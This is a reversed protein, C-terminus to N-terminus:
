GDLVQLIAAAGQKLQHRDEPILGRPDFRCRYHLRLLENLPGKIGALAPENGARNLWHALLENPQRLVGREALKSEVLYFESDLGPWVVRADAGTTQLRRQRRNRRFLIQFLLLALVPAPFWMLYRRLHTQGWRFKSFQFVMRSWLDSLGQLSSARKSEEKVWSAPTTDFDRWTRAPEDWVLCWAHADRQRVVYHGGSVEHVMYGVAYRAPIKLERLLLVTATAFYECHGSRTHLLFRTLPTEGENTGIPRQQWVSYNFKSQLFGNISRLMEETNTGQLPLESLVQDLAPREMEPVDFDSRRPPPDMTRGPGYSADFQILGPGEARVMGSSNTSLSTFVPLNELRGSGTPLPLLDFAGDRTRGELYCALSATGTNTKGRLLVWTTGNAEEPNIGQFDDRGRGALWVTSRYSRYSAERLYVPPPGTRTELWIVIRGSQKIRGIQGLSTRSHWPDAGRRAFSYLWQPNFTNLFGQLRGIGFQGGYGLAVALTFLGLWTVTGYRRSRQSWLAWALLVCLGWFYTSNDGAHNAAAFLCVAFYPFSLNLGRAPAPPAGTKKAAKRGWRSVLSLARLPIEERLSYVQAAVFLFFFMPLWRFLTPITQATFVGLSNHTAPGPNKFFSDFRSLGDNSAFAYVVTAALLMFCFTWIRNFDEDSLDWRTKVFRSGELAAAMATAAALRDTQWGWFVLAAGLLLPPTKM